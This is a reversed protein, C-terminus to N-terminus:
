SMRLLPSSRLAESPPRLVLEVRSKGNEKVTFPYSIDLGSQSDKLLLFAQHPRKASSDEQTTLTIRLTDAGTFALPNALPKSSSIRISYPTLGPCVRHSPLLLMSNRSVVTSAPVRQNFQWPPMLLDGHPHLSLRYPLPHWFAFPLLPRGCICQTTSSYLSIYLSASTSLHVTGM